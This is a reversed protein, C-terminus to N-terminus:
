KKEVLKMGCKPCDGPTGQVVEPHMPCTYKHATDSQATESKKCGTIGFSFAVLAFAALLIPLITKTKM